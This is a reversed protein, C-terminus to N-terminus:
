KKRRVKTTSCTVLQLLLQVEHPERSTHYLYHRHYVTKQCGTSVESWVNKRAIIKIIYDQNIQCIREIQLLLSPQPWTSLKPMSLSSFIIFLLTFIDLNTPWCYGNVARWIIHFISEMNTYCNSISFRWCIRKINYPLIKRNEVPLM